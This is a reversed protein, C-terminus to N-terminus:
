KIQIKPDLNIRDFFVDLAALKIDDVYLSLFFGKESHILLCEWNSVKQTIKAWM